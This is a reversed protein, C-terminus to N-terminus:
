PSARAPLTASPLADFPRATTTTRTKQTTVDGQAADVLNGTPENSPAVKGDGEKTIFSEETMGYWLCSGM